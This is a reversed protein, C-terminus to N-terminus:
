WGNGLLARTSSSLLLECETEGADNQEASVMGVGATFDRRLFTTREFSFSQRKATKKRVNKV